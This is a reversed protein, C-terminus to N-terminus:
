LGLSDYFQSAIAEVEKRNSLHDLLGSPIIDTGNFAGLLAGTMAANAAVDGGASVVEYLTEISDPGRLFMAYVFPLSNPIDGAAGGTLELIAKPEMGKFSGILLRQFIDSLKISMGDDIDAEEGNKAAGILSEVLAKRLADVNPVINIGELLCDCIASAQAYGSAVAMKTRHTMCSLVHIQKRVERLIRETKDCRAEDSLAKVRLIEACLFAGIPAVKVAIGTDTRTSDGAEALVFRNEKGLVSKLSQVMGDDWGVSSRDMASVHERYMDVPDIANKNTLSRAIALFLQTHVTGQGSAFDNSSIQSTHSSFLSSLFGSPKESKSGKAQVGWADGIASLLFMGKIRDQLAADNMDM